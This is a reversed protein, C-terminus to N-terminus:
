LVPIGAVGEDKMKLYKHCLPDCVTEPRAACGRIMDKM